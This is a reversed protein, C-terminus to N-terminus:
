MKYNIRLRSRLNYRKEEQLQTAAKIQEESLKQLSVKLTKKLVPSQKQNSCEELPQTVVDMAVESLATNPSQELSLIQNSSLQKKKRKALGDEKQKKIVEIMEKFAKLFRVNKKHKKHLTDAETIPLLMNM